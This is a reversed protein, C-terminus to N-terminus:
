LECGGPLTVRYLVPATIASVEMETWAFNKIYVLAGKEWCREKAHQDHQTKQCAQDQRAQADVAPYLLDLHSRPCQGM